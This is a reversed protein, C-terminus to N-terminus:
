GKNEMTMQVNKKKLEEGNAQEQREEENRTQQVQSVHQELNKWGEVKIQKGVPFDVM